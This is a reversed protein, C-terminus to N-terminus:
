EEYDIIRSSIVVYGLEERHGDDISASSLIPYEVDCYEFLKEIAALADDRSEFVAVDDRDVDPYKELVSDDVNYWYLLERTEKVIPEAYEIVRLSGPEDDRPRYTADRATRTEKTIIEVAKKMNM